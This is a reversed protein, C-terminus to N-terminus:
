EEKQMMCKSKTPYIQGSLCKDYDNVSICGRTGDMEGILCWNQKSNSSNQIPDSTSDDAFEPDKGDSLLSFFGEKKTKKEDENTTHSTSFPPKVTTPSIATVNQSTKDINGAFSLGIFPVTMTKILDGASHFAGNTVDVGTKSVNSITSSTQNIVDGTAYGVASTTKLLANATLTLFSIVVWFLNIGLFLLFFYLLIIFVIMYRYSNSTELDKPILDENPNSLM